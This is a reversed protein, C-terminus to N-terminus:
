RHPMKPAYNFSDFSSPFFYKPCARNRSARPLYVGRLRRVLGDPGSRSTVGCRAPVQALRLPLLDATPSIQAVTASNKPQEARKSVDAGKEDVQTWWTKVRDISLEAKQEAGRWSRGISKRTGIFNKGDNM